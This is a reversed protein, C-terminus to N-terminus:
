AALDFEVTEGNELEELSSAIHQLNAPSSLLYATEELSSFDEESVFVINGGERREVLCPAHDKCVGDFVTKLNKRAKTYTTTSNMPLM